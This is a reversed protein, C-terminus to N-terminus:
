DDIPTILVVQNINLWSTKDDHEVQAWGDSRLDVVTMTYTSSAFVIEYTEDVKLLPQLTSDLPTPTQKVVETPQSASSPSSIASPTSDIKECEIYLTYLGVGGPGGGSYINRSNHLLPGNAVQITYTGSASLVGSTISPSKTANGTRGLQIGTPGYLAIATNLFDGVPELSVSFSERPSMTLTYTQSEYDTSFESEIVDGCEVQREAQGQVHLSSSTVTLTLVLVFITVLRTTSIRRM